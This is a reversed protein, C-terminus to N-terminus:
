DRQTRRLTLNYAIEELLRNVRSVSIMKDTYVNISRDMQTEPNNWDQIWPFLVVVNACEVMFNLGGFWHYGDDTITHLPDDNSYGNYELIAEGIQRLDHRSLSSFKTYVENLHQIGEVDLQIFQNIGIYLGDGDLKTKAMEYTMKNGGFFKNM